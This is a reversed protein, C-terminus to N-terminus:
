YNFLGDNLWNETSIRLEGWIRSKELMRQLDTKRRQCLHLIKEMEQGCLQARELILRDKAEDVIRRIEIQNIEM